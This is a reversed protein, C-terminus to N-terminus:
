PAMSSARPGDRCWGGCCCATEATPPWGVAAHSTRSHNHTLPRHAMVRWLLVRYLGNIALRAPCHTTTCGPRTSTAPQRATIPNLQSVSSCSAAAM